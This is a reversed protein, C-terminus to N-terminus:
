TAVDIRMAMEARSLLTRADAAGSALTAIGINLVPSITHGGIDIPARTATLLKGAIQEAEGDHHLGTLLVVFEAGPLKFVTDDERLTQRLRKGIERLVADGTTRGLRSNMSKLNELNLIMVAVLKGADRHDRITQPLANDMALRNPLGTLTDTNSLKKFYQKEIQVDTVDISIGGLMPREAPVKFKYSRWWTPKGNDDAPGQEIAEVPESQEFIWRDHDIMQEAVGADWLDADTKGILDRESLQYAELMQRNAYTYRGTVDKMYAITPGSDMFSRFKAQEEELQDIKSRLELRLAMSAALMKLAGMVHMPFNERPITDMVCLTAVPYGDPSFIVVGAYFRIPEDEQRVINLNAFRADFRADPVVLMAEPARVTVSCFTESAPHTTVPAGLTTMGIVEHEAILNLSAIPASTLVRTVQLIQEIQNDPVASCVERAHRVARRHLEADDAVSAHFLPPLATM